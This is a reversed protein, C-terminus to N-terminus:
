WRLCHIRDRKTFSPLCCSCGKHAFWRDVRPHGLRDIGHADRPHRGNLTLAEALVKWITSKGCGAPGVIVAGTRHKIIQNLHSIKTLQPNSPLLKKQEIVQDIYEQLANESAADTEETKFIDKVIDLFLHRDKDDLKGLTDFLLAKIIVSDEHDSAGGSGRIWQGAINLVTKQALLGWDYHRQKSILQSGLSFCQALEKSNVFGESYLMIEGILAKDPQSMSVSRFLAKLNNPLKSRGDYEKGAPNLTVFIGSKLDLPVTKNLLTVNERKKLIATQIAQIQQSVASLVLEDLRNFEDFCGWAGCQVLGTFIRCISKVDIGDGCNFVLVQRGMAQGLAKVSETKGTGAPGYPNGAFGLHMGECLTSWCLDTLPTHVLKPANGQYEYGYDFTGDCMRVVCREDEYYYKYRCMREFNDLSVVNAYSFDEMVTTYQVLDIILSKILSVESRDTTEMQVSSSVGPDHLPNKCFDAVTHLFDNFKERLSRLQREPIAKTMARIYKIDEGIQVIQSPFNKTSSVAATSRGVINGKNLKKAWKEDHALKVVKEMLLTGCVPNRQDGTEKLVVYSNHIM